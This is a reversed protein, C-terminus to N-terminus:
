IPFLENLDIILAADLGKMPSNAPSIMVAIIWLLEVVVAITTVATAVPEIVKLLAMGITIPALIPVVIVLINTLKLKIPFLSSKLFAMETPEECLRNLIIITVM